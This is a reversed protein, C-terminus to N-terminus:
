ALNIAAKRDEAGLPGLLQRLYEQAAGTAGITATWTSEGDSQLTMQANVNVIGDHVGSEVM